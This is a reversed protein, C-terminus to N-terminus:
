TLDTVARPSPPVGTTALEATVKSNMHHGVAMLVIGLIIGLIAGGWYFLKQGSTLRTKKVTYYVTFGLMIIGFILLIVGFAIAIGGSVM